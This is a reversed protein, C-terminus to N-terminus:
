VKSYLGILEGEALIHGEIATVVDEKTATSDLDLHIDLAYVKFVYRHEGSPPCPGGYSHKNFSNVGETGPITNEAITNMPAINWVVWHVFIGRPADLDEVLVALTVTGEPIDEIHLPPNVDEGQCTYKSPIASNHQFAPSTVTLEKTVEEPVEEAAQELCGVTLLLVFLIVRKM